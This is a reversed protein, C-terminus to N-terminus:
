KQKNAEIPSIRNGFTENFIHNEVPKDFVRLHMINNELKTRLKHYVKVIIWVFLVNWIKERTCLHLVVWNVKLDFRECKEYKIVKWKCM